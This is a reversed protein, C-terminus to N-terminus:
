KNILRSVTGDGFWTGSETYYMKHEGSTEISTVKVIHPDGFLDLIEVKDGVKYTPRQSRVLSEVEKAKQELWDFTAKDHTPFYGGRERIFRGLLQALETM